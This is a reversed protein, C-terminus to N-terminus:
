VKSKRPSGPGHRTLRIGEGEGEEDEGDSGCRAWAERENRGRRVGGGGREGGDTSKGKQRLSVHGSETVSVGTGRSGLGEVGLDVDPDEDVFLVSYRGASEAM